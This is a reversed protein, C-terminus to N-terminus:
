SFTFSPDEKKSFLLFFSKFTQGPTLLEWLGLSFFSKQKKKNVFLLSKHQVLKNIESLM